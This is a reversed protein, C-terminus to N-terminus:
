LMQKRKRTNDHQTPPHHTHTHTHINELSVSWRHRNDPLRPLVDAAPKPFLAATVEPKIHLCFVDFIADAMQLRAALPPTFHPSPPLPPPLFLPAPPVSPSVPANGFFDRGNTERRCGPLPRACKARPEAARSPKRATPIRLGPCSLSFGRQASVSQRARHKNERRGTTHSRESISARQMSLTNLVIGAWLGERTILPSELENYM